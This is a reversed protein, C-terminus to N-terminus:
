NRPATRAMQRRIRIIRRRDGHTALAGLQREHESRVTSARRLAHISRRIKDRWLEGEAPRL